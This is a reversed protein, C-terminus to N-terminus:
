RQTFKSFCFSDRLSSRHGWRDIAGKNEVRLRLDNFVHLAIAAAKKENTKM